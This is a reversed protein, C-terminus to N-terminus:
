RRAVVAYDQFGYLLDNLRGVVGDLHDALPDDEGRLPLREAEPFPSLRRIEVASFGNSECIFALTDPHVPRLHTPDRHFNISGAILSEPNPTELVLLGGEPLTEWATEVLRSVVAPPLHEVVHSAVIADVDGAALGELHQLADQEVVELGKDKLLAVFDPNLEVGYADVGDDRLLEVLEGRGCGLDVVRRRGGLLERYVGQRSRIDEESGRFRAEFALYDIPPQAASPAEQVGAPSPAPAAPAALRAPARELRALRAALQLRELHQEVSEIRAMLGGVDRQAEERAAAEAGVARESWIRAERTESRVREIAASTQRALDDFVHVLLRLIGRKLLTLARGVGPRTSYALEPRFRVVLDGPPLGLDVGALDDAYAGAARQSAVRERLEEVLREVDIVQDAGSM